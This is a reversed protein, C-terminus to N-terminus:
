RRRRRADRLTDQLLESSKTELYGVEAYDWIRQAIDAYDTALADIGRMVDEDSQASAPSALVAVVTLLVFSTRRMM